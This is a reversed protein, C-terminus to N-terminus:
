IWICAIWPSTAHAISPIAENQKLFQSLLDLLCLSNMEMLGNVVVVSRYSKGSIRSNIAVWSIICKKPIQTTLLTAPIFPWYPPAPIDPTMPSLLFPPVSPAEPPPSPKSPPLVADRLGWLQSALHSLKVPSTLFSPLGAAASPSPTSLLCLDDAQVVPLISPDDEVLATTASVKNSSPSLESPYLSSSCQPQMYHLTDLPAAAFFAGYSLTCNSSTNVSLVFTPFYVLMGADNTGLFGKYRSCFQDLIDLYCSHLACLFLMILLILPLIFKSCAMDMVMGDFCSCFELVPELEGQINNFLSMLTTCTNAVTDPHFNQDLAVLMESGKGHYLSGKNKFLFRLLGDQITVRIQGEWFRSTELNTASIVLIMRISPPINLSAYITNSCTKFTLNLRPM